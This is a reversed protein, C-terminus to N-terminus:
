GHCFIIFLDVVKLAARDQFPQLVVNAPAPGHSIACVPKFANTKRSLAPLPAFAGVSSLEISALICAFAFASPRM